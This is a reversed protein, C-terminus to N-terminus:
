TGGVTGIRRQAAFGRPQGRSGRREGLREVAGGGLEVSAARVVRGVAEDDDDRRGDRGWDDFGFRAAFVRGSLKRRHRAIPRKLLSLAGVGVLVDGRTGVEPLVDGGGGPPELVGARPDRPNVERAQVFTPERTDGRTGARVEHARWPGARAVGVAVARDLRLVAALEAPPQVAALVRDPVILQAIVIAFKAVTVGIRGLMEHVVRTRKFRALRHHRGARRTM